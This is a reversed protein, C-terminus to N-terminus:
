IVPILIRDGVNLENFPDKVNNFYCIMWDLTPTGLFLNSILDPRHEYGLPIYGVKFRLSNLNNYYKEFNTSNLSSVVTKNKHTTKFFGKSYQNIYNM